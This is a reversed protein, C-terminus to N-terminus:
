TTAHGRVQQHNIRMSDLIASTVEHTGYWSAEFLNINQRFFGVATIDGRLRRTMEQLYDRNSKAPALRVLEKQALHSLSALYFARLALRFEGRDILEQALRLWSDEPLDDARIDEAELDLTRVPTADVTQFDIKKPGKRLFQVLVYLLSCIITIILTWALTRWPIDGFSFSQNPTATDKNERGMLWEIFKGIAKFVGEL